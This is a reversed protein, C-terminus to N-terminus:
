ADGGTVYILVRAEIVDLGALAAGLEARTVLGKREARLWRALHSARPPAAACAQGPAAWCHGCNCRAVDAAAEAMTRATVALTDGRPARDPMTTTM